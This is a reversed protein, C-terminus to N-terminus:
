NKFQRHQVFIMCRTSGKANIMALMRELHGKTFVLTYGDKVQAIAVGERDAMDFLDEVGFDKKISEDGM